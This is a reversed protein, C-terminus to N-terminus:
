RWNRRVNPEGQDHSVIVEVTVPDSDNGVEDTARIRLTYVRDTGKGLRTVRLAVTHDDVFEFDGARLPENCEIGVVRYGSNGAGGEVMASVTVPVRKNNPPWLSDPSVSVEVILPPEVIPTLLFVADDTFGGVLRGVGVIQGSQNIATALRLYQWASMDEVLSGLYVMPGDGESYFARVSGNATTGHGVIQGANNIGNAYSSAGGLTGLPTLSGDRWIFAVSNSTGVVEGHDNMAAPAAGFHDRIFPTLSTGDWYFSDVGFASGTSPLSIGVAHGLNNMAYARSSSDPPVTGMDVAVTPTPWFTARHNAIYPSNHTYGVIQGVNNIATAYGEGGLTPLATMVGDEWLFPHMRRSSDNSRGVVQGKANVGEVSTFKGGLTGLDVVSGDFWLSRGAVIHGADSIRVVSSSRLETIHRITYRIETQAGSVSEACVHLGVCIVAVAPLGPFRLLPHLM